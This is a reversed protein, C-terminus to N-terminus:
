AKGPQPFQGKVMRDFRGAGDPIARGNVRLANRVWMWGDPPLALVSLVESDIRRVTDSQGARLTQVYSENAIVHAFDDQYARVYRAAKELVTAVTVDDPTFAFSATSFAVALVALRNM